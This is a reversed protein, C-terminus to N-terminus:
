YTQIFLCLYKWMLALQQGFKLNNGIYDNGVINEYYYLIKNLDHMDLWGKQTVEFRFKLEIVEQKWRQIDEPTLEENITFNKRNWCVVCLQRKSKRKKTGCKQCNGYLTIDKM